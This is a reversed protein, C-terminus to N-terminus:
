PYFIKNLSNSIIDSVKDVYYDVNKTSVIYNIKNKIEIATVVGIVITPVKLTTFSIEENKQNLGSGPIIGEDTIQISKNLYKFDKTVYSDILIVLNPKIKDTISKIIKVTEIGTTGLVGPELASIIYENKIGINQLHANVRLKKIVKPGVSDATNNENGLGVVFIHKYNKNIYNKLEKILKKEVSKSDLLDDYTILRYSENNINNEVALDTRSSKFMTIVM